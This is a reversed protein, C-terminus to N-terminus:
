YRPSIVARPKFLFLVTFTQIAAGHMCIIMDSWLWWVKWFHYINNKWFTIWTAIYIFRIVWRNGKLLPRILLSPRYWCKRTRYSISKNWLFISKTRYKLSLKSVVMLIDIYRTQDINWNVELFFQTKKQKHSNLYWRVSKTPKESVGEGM